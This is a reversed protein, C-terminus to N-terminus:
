ASEGQAWRSAAPTADTPSTGTTAHFDVSDETLEMFAAELTAQQLALEHLVIQQQAALEGVQETTAGHISLAGDPDRVVTAGSATVAAALADAQPSRARVHTQASTRILEDTAADAILKGRGIVILRDATLAMESM